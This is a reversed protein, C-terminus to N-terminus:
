AVEKTFTIENMDYGLKKFASPADMNVNILNILKVNKGIAWDEYAKILSLSPKLGRHKPKLYWALCVAQLDDSFFCPSLFALLVGVIEEDKEMLLVLFDDRDIAEEILGGTKKYNFSFTKNLHSNDYFEKSFSMLEYIDEHNAERLKFAETQPM